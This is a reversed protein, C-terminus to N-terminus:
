ESVECICRGYSPRFDGFGGYKASYELIRVLEATDIIIDDFEIDVDFHWKHFIPFGKAIRNQQQPLILLTFFKDNKVIDIKHKVKDMGDFSLKAKESSMFVSGRVKAKAIKSLAYANKAIAAMVWRTPVYVGIDDDFFIKSEIEIDRIKQIIEDTKAAGRKNTLPKKLKTYHNFPDVTQPNNMLLPSIGTFSANITKIAMTNGKQIIHDRLSGDQGGHHAPANRQKANGQMARRQAAKSHKAKHGSLCSSVSRLAGQTDKSHKARSQEAIRQLTGLPVVTAEESVVIHM